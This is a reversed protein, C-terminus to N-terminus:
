EEPLRDLRLFVFPLTLLLRIFLYVCFVCVCMRWVPQPLRYKPLAPLHKRRKALTSESIPALDVPAPSEKATFMKEVTAKMAAVRTPSPRDESAVAQAAEAPQM